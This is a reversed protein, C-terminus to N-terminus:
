PNVRISGSSIPSTIPTLTQLKFINPKLLKLRNITKPSLLNKDRMQNFAEESVCDGDEVLRVNINNLRAVVKTYVGAEDKADWLGNADNGYIEFRKVLEQSGMEEISKTGKEPYEGSVATYKDSSIEEIKWGSPASYVTFNKTEMATTWDSKTEKARVYFEAKATKDTHSLRINSHVKPGNNVFNRDGNTHKPKNTLLQGRIVEDKVECIKPAPQIVGVSAIQESGMRLEMSQSTDSLPVGNSGLNITMHYHSPLNLAGSYDRTTGNTRKLKLAWSTQDLDYGYIEIKKLRNAKVLEMDVALPTMTCIAPNIAPPTDGKLKALIRELGQRARDGIFDANCRLEAGTAAIGRQLLDNVENRITSQADETLQSSLQQLTSQWSQSEYAMNDIADQVLVETSVVANQIDAGTENLVECASLLSALSIFILIKKM